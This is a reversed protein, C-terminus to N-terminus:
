SEVPVLGLPEDHLEELLSVPDDSGLSIALYPDPLSKLMARISALPSGAQEVRVFADPEQDHEVIVQGADATLRWGKLRVLGRRHGDLVYVAVLPDTREVVSGISSELVLSSEVRVPGANRITRTLENFGDTAIMGAQQAAVLASVILVAAPFPMVMRWTRQM